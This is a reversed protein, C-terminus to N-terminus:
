RAKKRRKAAPAQARKGKPESAAAAEGEGDKAKSPPEVVEFSSTMAATLQKDLDAGPPCRKSKLEARLSEVAKVRVVFNVQTQIQTRFQFLGWTAGVTAIGLEKAQVAEALVSAEVFNGLRDSHVKNVLGVMSDVQTATSGIEAFHENAFLAKEIEPKSLLEDKHASWQPCWTVIQASLEKINSNWTSYTKGLVAQFETKLSDVVAAVDFGIVLPLSADGGLKSLDINSSRECLHHLVRRARTVKTALDHAIPMAFVDLSFSALGASAEVIVKLIGISDLVQQRGARRVASLVDTIMAEDLAWESISVLKQNAEEDGTIAKVYGESDCVTFPLANAGTFRNIVDNLPKLKETLVKELVQSLKALGLHVDGVFWATLCSACADGCIRKIAPIVKRLELLEGAYKSSDEDSVQGDSNVFKPLEEAVKIVQLIVRTEEDFQEAFQEGAFAKLGEATRLFSIFKDVSTFRKEKVSSAAEEDWSPQFILGVLDATAQSSARMVDALLGEMEELVPLRDRLYSAGKSSCDRLDADVRTSCWLLKEFDIGGSEAQFESSKAAEGGGSLVHKAEGLVIKIRNNMAETALIRVKYAEADSKRKRGPPFLTIANAIINSSDSVKALAKELAKGDSAKEFNTTTVLAELQQIIADGLDAAVHQEIFDSLVEAFGEKKTISVVRESCLREQLAVAERQDYGARTLAETSLQRWFNGQAVCRVTAWEHRQKFLVEPFPSDTEPSMQLLNLQRDFTDAFADSRVGSEQVATLVELIATIVKSAKMLATSEEPATENKMRPGIDKSLKSLAKAKIAWSDGFWIPIHLTAKKLEVAETHAMEVLNRQPRGKGKPKAKAKPKAVAEEASAALEGAAAAAAGKAAPSTTPRKRKAGKDNPTTTKDEESQAKSKTPSAIDPAVFASGFLFGGVVQHSDADM